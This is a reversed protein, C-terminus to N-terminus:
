APKWIDANMTTKCKVCTVTAWDYIDNYPPKFDLTNHTGCVNCEFYWDPETYFVDQHKMLKEEARNDM